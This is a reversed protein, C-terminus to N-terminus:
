FMEISRGTGRVNSHGVIDQDANMGVMHITTSKQERRERASSGIRVSLRLDSRRLDIPM